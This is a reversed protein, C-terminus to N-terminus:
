KSLCASVQVKGRGKDGGGRSGGESLCQFVGIVRITVGLKLDRGLSGFLVNDNNKFQYFQKKAM